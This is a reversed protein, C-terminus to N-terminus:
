GKNFNQDLNSGVDCSRLKLRKPMKREIGTSLKFTDLKSNGRWDHEIKKKQFTGAVVKDAISFLYKSM